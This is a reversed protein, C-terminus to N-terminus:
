TGHVLRHIFNKVRMKAFVKVHQTFAKESEVLCGSEFYAAAREALSDSPKHGNFYRRDSIAKMMFTKFALGSDSAIASAYARGAEKVVRQKRSLDQFVIPPIAIRTGLMLSKDQFIYGFDIHVFAGDYDRIMVNDFHRDRIGLTYCGIIGGVLSPLCQSHALDKESINSSNRAEVVEVLGSTPTLPLVQYTPIFWNGTLKTGNERKATANKWRMNLWNFGQQIIWDTSVDEKKYIFKREIFWFLTFSLLLPKTKSTFVKLVTINTVILPAGLCVPLIFFTNKSFPVEIIVQSFFSAMVNCFTRQTAFYLILYCVGFLFILFGQWWDSLLVIM